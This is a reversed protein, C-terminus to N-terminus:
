LQKLQALIQYEFNNCRNNATGTSLFVNWLFSFFQPYWRRSIFFIGGIFLVFLMSCFRWDPHWSHISIYFFKTKECSWVKNKKNYFLILQRGKEWTLTHGLYNTPNGNVSNNYGIRYKKDLFVGCVWVPHPSINYFVITAM